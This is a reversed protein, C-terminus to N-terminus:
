AELVSPERLPSLDNFRPMAEKEVPFFMNLTM